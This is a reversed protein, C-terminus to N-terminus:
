SVHIGKISRVVKKLPHKKEGTFEAADDKGAEEELWDQVAVNLEVDDNERHHLQEDIAELVWGWKNEALDKM